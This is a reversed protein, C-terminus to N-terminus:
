VVLGGDVGLVQGTIYGARDSVLFSVLDAVEEPQGFRGLPIRDVMKTVHESSLDATMDTEIFGPAVANARLGYPGVERALSRTFGIIGAKTAAYNSQGVNGTVGIVSSMTVLVGARRKLMGFVAAKCVHYTGDLNSRMVDHWQDDRMLALPNDSVIGACSIVAHIPGLEKETRRVFRTVETREAVDVQEALVAAGTEAAEKAVLDAAEKNSRYCFAVDYGDAALRTVVQHGIGRSGGTVLAVRRM